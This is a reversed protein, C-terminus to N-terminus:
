VVHGSVTELAKLSDEAKKAKAELETRETDTVAGAQTNEATTAAPVARAAELDSKAKTLQQQL